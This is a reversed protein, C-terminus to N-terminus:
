DCYLKEFVSDCAVWGTLKVNCPNGNIYIRLQPRRYLGYMDIDQVSNFHAPFAVFKYEPWSPNEIITEVNYESEITIVDSHDVVCGATWLTAMDALRRNMRGGLNGYGSYNPYIGFYRWRGDPTTPSVGLLDAILICFESRRESVHNVTIDAGLDNM